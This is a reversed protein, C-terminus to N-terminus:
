VTDIQTMVAFELWDEVLTEREGTRMIFKGESNCAPCLEDAYYSIPCPIICERIM